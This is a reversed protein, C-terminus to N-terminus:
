IIWFAMMFIIFAILWSKFFWTFIEKSLLLIEVSYVLGMMSRFSIGNKLRFLTMFVKMRISTSTVISALPSPNNALESKSFVADLDRFLFYVLNEFDHLSIGILALCTDRRCTCMFNLKSFLIFRQLSLVNMDHHLLTSTEM